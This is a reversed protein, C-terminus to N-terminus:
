GGPGGYFTLGGGADGHRRLLVRVRRKRATGARILDGVDVYGETRCKPCVFRPRWETVTEWRDGNTARIKVQWSGDTSERALAYDCTCCVIDIDPQRHRSM